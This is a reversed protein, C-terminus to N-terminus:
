AAGLAPAPRSRVPAPQPVGAARIDACIRKVTSSSMMMVRATELQTLGMRRYRLVARWTPNYEALARRAAALDTRLEDILAPVAVRMQREMSLLEKRIQRGIENNELLSLEKAMDTTLRYEISPRGFRSKGFNRFFDEDEIFGYTEIRGKIWDTFKSGAQLAAHLRRADVYSTSEGAPTFIQLATM